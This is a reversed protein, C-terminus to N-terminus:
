FSRAITVKLYLYSSVSQQFNVINMHTEKLDMVADVYQTMITSLVNLTSVVLDQARTLM